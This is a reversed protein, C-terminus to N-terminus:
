VTMEQEEQMWACYEFVYSLGLCVLFAALAGLDIYSVSAPNDFYGPDSFVWRWVDIDPFGPLGFGLNFFPLTGDAMLSAAASFAAGALLLGLFAFAAIRLRHSQLNFDLRVGMKMDATMGKMQYLVVCYLSLGVAGQAYIPIASKEQTHQVLLAILVVVAAAAMVACLFFAISM